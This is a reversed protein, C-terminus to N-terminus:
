IEFKLNGVVSETAVVPDSRTKGYTGYTAIKEEKLVTQNM